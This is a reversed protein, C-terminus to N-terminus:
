NNDHCSVLLVVMPHHHRRLEVPLLKQPPDFCSKNNIEKTTQKSRRTTTTTTAQHIRSGTTFSYHIYNFLSPKLSPLQIIEKEKKTRRFIRANRNHTKLM